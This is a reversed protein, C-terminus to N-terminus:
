CPPQCRRTSGAWRVYIAVDSAVPADQPATGSRDLASGAQESVVYAAQEEESSTKDAQPRCLAAAPTLLNGLTGLTKRLERREANALVVENHLAELYTKIKPRPVHLDKHVSIPLDATHM